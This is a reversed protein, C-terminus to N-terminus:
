PRQHLLDMAALAMARSEAIREPDVKKTKIDYACLTGVTQGDVVLRAAAYFRIFPAGIVLAHRAFRPDRTTDEVVLVDDDTNFFVECFSTATPSEGMPLGVCSKFWDRKEDLLNVMTIPVDFGQALTRTLDDYAKEPQTDLIVLQKLTELRTTNLRM